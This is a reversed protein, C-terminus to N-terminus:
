NIYIVNFEGFLRWSQPCERRLEWAEGGFYNVYINKEKNGENPPTPSDEKFL